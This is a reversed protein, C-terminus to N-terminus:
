KSRVHTVRNGSLPAEPQRGPRLDPVSGGNRQSNGCASNLVALLRISDFPKPIVTTVGLARGVTESDRSSTMLIFPVDAIPGIAQQHRRLDAGDMVPMNLDVIMACPVASKLWALAEKGNAALQVEFGENRLWTAMLDRFDLDDDVVLVTGRTSM